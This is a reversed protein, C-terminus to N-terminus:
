RNVWQDDITLTNPDATLQEALWKLRQGCVVQYVARYEPFHELGFVKLHRPKLNTYVALVKEVLEKNRTKALVKM